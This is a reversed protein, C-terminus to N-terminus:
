QRKAQSSTLRKGLVQRITSESEKLDFKKKLRRALDSMSPRYQSNTKKINEIEKEAKAVLRDHAPKRESAIQTGRKRGRARQGTSTSVGLFINSINKSWVAAVTLRITEFFIKEADKIAVAERIQPVTLIAILASLLELQQGKSKPPTLLFKRIDYEQNLEFGFKSLVRRAEGECSRLILEVDSLGKAKARLRKRMKIIVDTIKSSTLILIKEPITPPPGPISALYRGIDSNISTRKTMDVEELHDEHHDPPFPHPAGGQRDGGM